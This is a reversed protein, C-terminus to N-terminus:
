PQGRSVSVITIGALITLIGTLRLSTIQEGLIIRSAVIVGVFQLTAFSQAVNLPLSRVLLSYGALAIGFSAAGAVSRWGWIGLLRIQEPGSLADYKLLLNALVSFGVMVATALIVRIADLSEDASISM